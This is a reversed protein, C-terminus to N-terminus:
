MHIRIDAAIEQICRDIDVNEYSTEIGCRRINEECFDAEDALYRRCLEDYRPQEQLRERDLARKLREGNEVTIYLPILREKGFYNRTKEYSELTGILLYHSKKLDIQGDDVTFYSWPGMMTQYTRCEIIKGARELDEKQEQTVFHYEAGDQEGKRIPRTTYTVVTKLEPLERLLEKYITDKGVASKGMVYFIKGM